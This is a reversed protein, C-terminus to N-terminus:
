PNTKEDEDEEPYFHAVVDNIIKPAAVTAALAIGMYLMNKRDKLTTSSMQGPPRRRTQKKFDFEVSKKSSTNSFTQFRTILCPYNKVLFNLKLFSSSM